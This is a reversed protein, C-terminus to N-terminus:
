KKAIIYIPHYTLSIKGNETSFIEIYKESFRQLTNQTWKQQSLGNVGTRKIHVLADKPTDFTLIIKEEEVCLISFGVQSLMESLEQPTSYHLSCDTLNNIEQLNEKGFTSFAFLGNENLASYAKQFFADLDHFWQFTSCSTLLDIQQPLEWQEADHAIFSYNKNTLIDTLHQEMKCIDNIILEKPRFADILLRSYIGTGCGIEVIKGMEDEVYSQLLHIMNLAIKKQAVADNDYSHAAKSFRNIILEKNM